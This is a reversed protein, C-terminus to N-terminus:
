NMTKKLVDLVDQDDVQEFRDYFQGVAEFLPPSRLCVMEDVYGALMRITDEPGVPFAAILKGPKELTVAQIAALTTAGTAVGDDTVIVKRGALDVKPQANTLM